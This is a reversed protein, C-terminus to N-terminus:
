LQGPAGPGTARQTNLVGGLVEGGEGGAREDAREGAQAPEGDRETGARHERQEAGPGGRDAVLVPGPGRVAHPHGPLSGAANPTPRARLHAPGARADTDHHNLDGLEPEPPPVTVRDWKGVGRLGLIASSVASSRRCVTAGEVYLRHSIGGAANATCRHM